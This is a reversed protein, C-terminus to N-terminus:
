CTEHAKQKQEIDNETTDAVHTITDDQGRQKLVTSLVFHFLLLWGQILLKLLEELSM